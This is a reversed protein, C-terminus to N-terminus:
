LDVHVTVFGSCCCGRNHRTWYHSIKVYWVAWKYNTCEESSINNVFYSLIIFTTLNLGNQRIMHFTDFPSSPAHIISYRPSCRRYMLKITPLNNTLAEPTIHRSVRAHHFHCTSILLKMDSCFDRNYQTFACLIRM